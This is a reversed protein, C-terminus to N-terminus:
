LLAAYCVAGELSDYPPYNPILRYGRGEYLVCAGEMLPRTQLIMRTCGLARAREEACATLGTGIGRRRYEPDVWLRKLEADSASHRRVGVCGVACGELIALCVEPIGESLNFPVFARRRDAGGAIQTYYDETIDYFARFAPDEGTTWRFLVDM